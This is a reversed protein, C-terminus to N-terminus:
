LYLSDVRQKVPLISTQERGKAMPRIEKRGENGRDRRGEREIECM